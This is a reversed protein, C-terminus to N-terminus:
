GKKNANNDAERELYNYQSARGSFIWVIPFLVGLKEYQYTHQQEHKGLVVYSKHNYTPVKEELSCTALICNGLTIASHPIGLPMYEFCIANYKVSPRSGFLIGLLGVLIGILTIPSAWLKRIVDLSM